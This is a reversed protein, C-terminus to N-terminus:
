AQSGDGSGDIVDAAPPPTITAPIGFDFYDFTM